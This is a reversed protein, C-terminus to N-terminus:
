VGQDAVSLVFGSSQMTSLGTPLDFPYREPCVLYVAEGSKLASGWVLSWNTDTAVQLPPQSSKGCLARGAM